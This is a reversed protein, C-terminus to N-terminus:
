IIFKYLRSIQMLSVDDFKLGAEWLNLEVSKTWVVQGKIMMPEDSDPLSVEITIDDNILLKERSIIGVGQASANRLSLKSGFEDRGDKFKAPFRASFREFLRKDATKQTVEEEYTEAM